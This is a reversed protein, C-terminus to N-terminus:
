KRVRKESVFTTLPAFLPSSRPRAIWVLRLLSSDSDSFLSASVATQDTFLHRPEGWVGNWTIEDLHVDMAGTADWRRHEYVVRLAGCGDIVPRLGDFGDAPRLDDPSSFSRGGDVSRVHRLIAPFASGSVNQGWLLHVSAADGTLAWIGTALGSPEDLVVRPRQWSRGDDDSGSVLIVSQTPVPFPGVARVMALLLSGSGLRAVSLYGVPHDMPMRASSWSGGAYRVDLIGHSARSWLAPVLVHVSGASDVFTGANIDTWLITASDAVLRPSSWGSGNDYEAGWLQGMETQYFPAQDGPTKEGWLVLLKGDPGQYLRPYAFTFHGAPRGVPGVGLEWVELPADPISDVFFPVNMGAVYTHRGVRALSPYRLVVPHTPSTGALPEPPSWPGDEGCAPTTGQAGGASSGVVLWLVLGRIIVLSRM